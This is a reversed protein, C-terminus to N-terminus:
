VRSKSEVAPCQKFWVYRLIAITLDAARPATQQICQVIKPLYITEYHLRSYSNSLTPDGNWCHEEHLGYAIEAHAPPNATKLSDEVLYVADNLMYTDDSGVHVVM